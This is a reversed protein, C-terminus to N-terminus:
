EVLGMRQKPTFGADEIAKIIGQRDTSYSAGAKSVVNEEIMISGFDNGGAHLCLQAVDFGVTLWSPQLTSINNLMIRATAFLRVYGTATVSNKVGKEKLLRTDKDQFPWPIFSVFGYADAPRAEQTERLLMLHQIREELTEIHGFMMTASTPINLEHATQMVSLWEGTLCKGPSITKRVRDALIEAGAGPLSDLGAATLQELVERYSCGEMRALHVVEAPGLAHLKLSPSLEKLSRFLGTYFSLGLGPHLGGQLLLQRGGLHHLFAIKERYEDITTIYSGSANSHCHFNCFWCGAKCINT